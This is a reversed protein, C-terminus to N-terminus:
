SNQLKSRAVAYKVLAQPNIRDPPLRGIRQFTRGNDHSKFICYDETGYLSGDATAYVVYLRPIYGVSDFPKIKLSSGSTMHEILERKEPLAEWVSLSGIM